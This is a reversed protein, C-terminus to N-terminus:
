GLKWTLNRFRSYVAVAVITLTATFYLQFQPALNLFQVASALEVILLAGLAAGMFSGRGGLVSAGGIAAAAVSTLTYANGASANGVGSQGALLLGALGAFVACAVFAALSLANARVGVKLATGPSSGSARLGIGVATHYLMWELILAAFIAVGSVIPVFGIKYAVADAILSSIHGGPVPRLLLAIGELATFTVLTAILPNIKAVTALVWNTFGVTVATCLLLLLGAILQVGGQDSQTVYSALVVVVSAMPGVSLDVAGIMLAFQQGMSFFALIAFLPLLLQFNRTTLFFPNQTAVLLAVLGIMTVLVTVPVLNSDGLWRRWQRPSERATRSGTDRAVDATLAAGTISREAVDTGTLERAVRGRSFVVIRDCLAALEASDSSVVVVSAGSNASARLTTYIESRAGVDVGVTPEDALLVNVQRTQGRAIMAKQQNGGSLTHIDAEASSSRIDFRAIASDTSARERSKSVIGARSVGALSAISINERVGLRPLLGERQRDNSIYYGGAAM